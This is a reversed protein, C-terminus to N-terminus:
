KYRTWRSFNLWRWCRWDYVSRGALADRFESELEAQNFVPLTKAISLTESVWDDMSALWKKEPTAFGIKDERDLIEDPVIGRMAERFVHKSVGDENLLYHEPLSFLYEVLEVYLFPVRSELSWRMSDRDAWRLMQPLGFETLNSALHAKLPHRRDLKRSFVNEEQLAYSEIWDRSLWSRRKRPLFIPKLMRKMRPPLMEAITTVLLSSFTASTNNICARFFALGRTLKGRAILSALLSAQYFVYGALIEDAGQGDLVVTVGLRRAEKFVRYQAYISTSGFPEGQIAILDDIDEQLEEPEITIKHAKAGIYANVIDVWKEESLKKDEAIFSFTNIEIDPFLYRIACIISSSDIGGSLNAGVPVDSRMHLKVSQLFLERVNAVAQEFTPYASQELNLAWYRIPQITQSEALSIEAFHAAPFQKINSYLTNPTHETAGLTLYDYVMQADLSADVGTCRLLQQCESAFYLNRGSQAYYLPKIGFHDRAVLLTSNLSDFFTFSFMGRFRSIVASGWYILANLVVETDSESLFSFGAEVLEDRIELYNYVEGNYCISFRGCYSIMPQSGHSSVDIISLRTHGQILEGSLTDLTRSFRCKGANWDVWAHDDPGRHQVCGLLDFMDHDIHETNVATFIGCM